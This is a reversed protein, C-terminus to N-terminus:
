MLESEGITDYVSMQRIYTTNSGMEYACPPDNHDGLLSVIGTVLNDKHISECMRAENLRGGSQKWVLKVVAVEGDPSYGGAMFRTRRWGDDIHFTTLEYAKDHWPLMSPVLHNKQDRRLHLRTGKLMNGKPAACLCIFVTDTSCEVQLRPLNQSNFCLSSSAYFALFGSRNVQHRSCSWIYSVTQAKERLTTGSDKTPLPRFKVKGVHGMSGWDPIFSPKESSKVFQRIADTTAPVSGLDSIHGPHDTAAQPAHTPTVVTMWLHDKPLSLCRDFISM